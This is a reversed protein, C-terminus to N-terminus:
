KHIKFHLFHECEPFKLVVIEFALDLTLIYSDFHKVWGQSLYTHKCTANLTNFSLSMMILMWNSILKFINQLEYKPMTIFKQFM